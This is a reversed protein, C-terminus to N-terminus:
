TVTIQPSFNVKWSNASMKKLEGNKELESVFEQTISEADNRKIKIEKKQYFSIIAYQIDRFFINSNYFLPYKEKMFNFFVARNALLDKLHNM